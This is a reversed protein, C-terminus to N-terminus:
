LDLQTRLVKRCRRVAKMADRTEAANASEGPYRIEVGYPNLLNVEGTLEALTPAHPLCLNLLTVLNHIPPPVVRQAILVAKLYKEM